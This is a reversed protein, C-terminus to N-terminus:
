PPPPIEAEESAATAAKVGKTAIVHDGWNASDNGREAIASQVDAHNRMAEEYSLTTAVGFREQNKRQAFEDVGTQEYHRVINNVDCSQTFSQDTLSKGSFDQSYKRKRKTTAM